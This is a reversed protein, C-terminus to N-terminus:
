LKTSQKNLWTKLGEYASLWKKYDDENLESSSYRMDIFHKSPTEVRSIWKIVHPSSKVRHHLKNHRKLAEILSHGPNTIMHGPDSDETKWEHSSAAALIMAKLLCEITVGGWHMAAIKRDNDQLIKTEECRQLFASQYDEMKGRCGKVIM